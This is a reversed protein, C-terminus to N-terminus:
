RRRFAIVLLLAALVTFGIALTLDLAGLDRHLDNLAKLLLDTQTQLEANM